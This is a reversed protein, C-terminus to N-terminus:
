VDLLYEFRKEFEDQNSVLGRAAKPLGAEAIEDYGDFLAILKRDPLQVFIESNHIPGSAVMMMNKPAGLKMFLGSFKDQDSAYDGFEFRKSFWVSM